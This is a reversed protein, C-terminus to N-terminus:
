SRQSVIRRTRSINKKIAPSLAEGCQELQQGLDDLEAEADAILSTEESTFADAVHSVLRQLVEREPDPETPLLKQRRLEALLAKRYDGLEAMRASSSDAQHQYAHELLQVQEHAARLATQYDDLVINKM